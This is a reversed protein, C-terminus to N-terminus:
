NQTAFCLKHDGEVADTQILNTNQPHGQKEGTLNHNSGQHAQSPWVPPSDTAAVRTEM